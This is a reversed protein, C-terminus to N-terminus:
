ACPGEVLQAAASSSSNWLEKAAIVVREKGVFASFVYDGAVRGEFMHSVCGTLPAERDPIHLTVSRGSEFAEKLVEVTSPEHPDRESPM